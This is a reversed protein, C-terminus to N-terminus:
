GVIIRGAFTHERTAERTTLFDVETKGIKAVDPGSPTENSLRGVPRCKTRMEVAELIKSVAVQQRICNSTGQYIEVVFM